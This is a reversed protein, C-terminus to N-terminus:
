RSRGRGGGGRGGPGPGRKPGGRKFAGRKPGRSPGREKPAGTQELGIHGSPIPMDGPLPVGIYSEREEVKPKRSRERKGQRQGRSHEERLPRKADRPGKGRGGRV